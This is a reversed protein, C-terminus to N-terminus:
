ILFGFLDSDAPIEEVHLPSADMRRRLQTIDAPDALEIGVLAPGTERNNKKTYEFLIIDEDTSLVDDLFHRLAGPQQQFAVLFYHRLGQYRAAREAIEDYRSLDNNGGSVVAVVAGTPTHPLGIRLAASALAGAPEAIVGESHYLDLLESCVAGEPVTVFDLHLERVIEFSRKGVRAVATGDVFTDVKPLLAPHGAALAAQMSAAGEPEVGVVRVQPQNEAFWAAIGALLGGGGVPVLVTDLEQDGLAAVIEPAITGQGAIVLDDDFPHVWVAGAEIAHLQAQASAVDFTGDVIVQDVWGRGIEAIRNRKQRPTNSPLFIRGDVGLERCAYAVGQAHNGASAAVVGKTREAAPLAAITNFAGRVKFSRCVQLDERKLLVPFGHLDSLRESPELPTHKLVGRLRSRAGAFDLPVPKGKRM